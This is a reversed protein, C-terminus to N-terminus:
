YRKLGPTSSHHDRQHWIDKQDKIYPVPLSVVLRSKFADTYVPVELANLDNGLERDDDSWPDYDDRSEASENDKVAVFAISCNQVLLSSSASATVEELVGAEIRAGTLLLGDLQVARKWAGTTTDEEHSENDNDTWRARLRLNEPAVSLERATHQKLVSLFADPRSFCALEVRDPLRNGGGGGASGVLSVLSRYRSILQNVFALTDKPGAPWAVFWSKPTTTLDDRTARLTELDARVLQLLRRATDIEDSFFCSLPDNTETAGRKDHRSSQVRQQQQQLQQDVAAVLDKITKAVSSSSSSEGARNNSSRKTKTNHKMIDKLYALSIEAASKEWARHANAPLGFYAQISDAEDLRDVILIPNEQVARPVGIVSGLKRRGSYTDRCWLSRLLARLMRMDHQDQLQGGYVAVDLLGRDSEWDTYDADASGRMSEKRRTTSSSSATGSSRVVVLECAAELDAESWAYSKIWGQPVFKRREQLVAHLWAVLLSKCPDRLAPQRQQLQQLSRRVNRKVGEPPEYALKLCLGALGPYFGGVGCEETTLWIRTRPQKDLSRLLADLRPLWSKALQLNSLLIWSGNKCASELAAEAQGVHGQSLSVEAFGGGGAERTVSAVLARLEPEPDAGPSLLLLVPRCATNEEAIRKLTWAPPTLSKVGLQQAAWKALATHLHEPHLAQVILLKEFQTLDDDAYISVINNTWSPKLKNAMEPLVGILAKVATRQEPLVFNPVNRDTVPGGAANTSSKGSLLLARQEDPVSSLSVALHLALALRHKRYVASTCHHLVLTIMTKELSKEREDKALGRLGARAREAELFMEALQEDTFVYLSSLASFARVFKHLVAGYKALREHERSRKAIDELDRRSQELARHIERAKSQTLELTALLGPGGGSVNTSEQLLDQGRAAGLQLLLEQRAADIEGSLKEERQLAERRRQEIEPTEQLIAKDVLREVLSRSGAGLAVKTLLADAESPLEEALNERRTALFLRFGEQVPLQKDAIKLPGGRLLPLLVDPLRENMEEVLLPKGFRVALEVSTLFRPDGPRTTELGGSGGQNSKLWSVAVGSPDLFLPTLVGRLSRCAGVFSETDAPLGQARWQLKDRESILLEIARAREEEKPKSSSSGAPQEYVLLAAAQAAELGVRRRRETLRQLQTQWDAHEADLKALLARATALSSETAQSRLELEAAGRSHAALEEQLQAVKSEVSDLGSQLKGIEAEAANLRDALVRQEKELPAVQLVIKGYQLNALVWAALPAAAVSARRATKEEFSEPRERVLREVADLGQATSRRADWGRIEEKVGRKALFTKMSNWSTDKIGMLRLVGELVDRVAAPPARLSRVESLADSSIGAVAQSAQDVLPKVKGLELEIDAKRRALEVSERETEAKLSAMEGRQGTAGRMTATIQELAANARGRELELEHRHKSADEELKAVREGAEKLRDIGARLHRLKAATQRSWAERLERWKRLLACFRAPAQQRSAAGLQCEILEKSGSSGDDKQEDDIDDDAIDDDKNTTSQSRKQYLKVLERLYSETLWWDRGQSQGQTEACCRLLNSRQLLDGRLDNADVVIAVRLFKRLRHYLFQELNKSFEERAALDVLPVVLGDLEETSYLGPLEGHSVIAGILVAIDEERLHNEEILLITREGDIGASQVANKIAIKARGPGSSILKVNSIVSVVKVAWKRGAGPRGSLLIGRRECGWMWSIDAAIELLYSTVTASISDGERICRMVANDTESKWESESLGALGAAHNSKWVYLTAADNTTNTTRRHTAAGEGSGAQASVITELRKQEKAILKPRFIRRSADLLYGTLDGERDAPPYYKLSEIWTIVDRTTWKNNSKDSSMEFYAQVVATSVRSIWSKFQKENAKLHESLNLEVIVKLDKPQIKPLYHTALLSDLRPHFKAGTDSTCLLSLSVKAFELDDEYFGGEQILQRLLEQFDKSALHLDEVVLILSAGNKPKYSRGASSDLKVCARKLRSLLDRPGYLSSARVLALVRGDSEERCLAVIASVLATKGCGPEGRLVTARGSKLWPLTTNVGRQMPGSLYVPGDDTQQTKADFAFPDLTDKKENYLADYPNHSDPCWVDTQQYLWRVLEDRTTQDEIQGCLATVYAYTCRAQTTARRFHPLAASLLGAASKQGHTAKAVRDVVAPFYNQLAQSASSPLDQSASPPPLHQILSKASLGGLHVIGLRSVTAPSAGSLKHTEFIFRTENGLKIGVGNPLTLIRNDDLASNLSEAWDPEVDGDLVLWLPQDGFNTIVYSLIGEKYERTQSDVSGLLRTKPIAGPYVVFKKVSSGIKTLARALTDVILTKGSGAPGVVAVGSRSQLQDNLQICRNVITKSYGKADCIDALATQLEKNTRLSSELISSEVLFIDALLQLFKSADREVLKPMISIKIGHLLRSSEDRDDDEDDISFQIANLVSRLARLGWDYHPQQSLLKEAAYFTEILKNSLSAVNEFGYCELLSRVIYEKNPHAMGIPRFLRALSDPLKRRGGYDDGAPNMTVFLCCHPDVGIELGGLSARKEGDRIAEQLPRILMAVASMTGEELRNFEDFCGWAGAQALGSLIRRMSGADMGEDCNFVLVRRGLISGLAKVSETKGTGAPGTPSGGLGLRMAQTLALYCKETLPTRVLGVAAGQYEFRYAFEAKSCRILADGGSKYTRLQRQWTWGLKEKDGAVRLLSRVISLHHVTELLLNKAKLSGIPDESSELSRYRSRLNELHKLLNRLDAVGKDDDLAAECRETFRIRECLLLIQTPYLAIDPQQELLCTNLSQRLANRMGKELSVLWIPFEDTCDVKETLKLEEGEPSVISSIKNNEMKVSGLSQFLKSLHVDFGKGKGSILELLDEDSLFYLRPYASRKEELFDDLGRQCRDMLDKLSTLAHFPLKKLSPIRPDKYIEEMFYRFEKDVRSWRGQDSPAAGSSLVPELYVWKRQVVSLCKLRDELETLASECRAARSAFREYGAAGRAGEMILRLEGARTLLTSYDGVLHISNNRSDKTPQLPLVTYSEWAELEGLAQRIGSEAGARKTVEKIRDYNTRISQVNSLLHKLTIENTRRVDLGLIDKLENWHEEALEDSRLVQILDVDESLSEIKKEIFSHFQKTTGKENQGDSRRQQKENSKIQARWSDLWDYLKPIRKKVISWEEEEQKRLEDMFDSQLKCNIEESNLEQEMQEVIAEDSAFVEEIDINLKKCDNILTQRQEAIGTWKERMNELWDPTIAEPRELWKSVWREQEDRVALVQHNLNVKAEELQRVMVNQYTDLREKLSEWAIHANNLGDLKEKTWAALVRSLGTVDELERIIEDTQSQIQMYADFAEGIEEITRSRQQLKKSSTSLFDVISILRSSAEARLDLSLQEWYRRSLLELDNRITATDIVICSLKVENARLKGVEQAWQKAEKFAKEWDQAQKGKLTHGIDIKAPAVLPLWKLRFIELADLLIEAERYVAGFLHASRPVLRPFQAQDAQENGGGGVGRFNAPIVLFRRIGTYLKMRVDELHPRWQLSEDRYTLDLRLEPLKKVLTPLAARYAIALAKLLQRDWHLKWAATNGYRSEVSSVIERMHRLTEKWTNQNAVLNIADGKLLNCILNRLAAHRSALEANQLAFKKVLDRLRETFRDVSRPDSWAVGVQDRVAAALELASAQMLPRQSPIQRDGVTNYFNAIQQLARARGTLASARSVLERLERPLEVGQGALGRAERILGTLRPNYNVRMLNSSEGLEVVSTERGLTIENNLISDRMENIWSETLEQRQKEVEKSATALKQAVEDYGPLDALLQKGLKQLSELRLESVRATQVSRLIEPSDLLENTDPGGLCADILDSYTALLQQRESRLLQKITDRKVLDGYRRFETELALPTRAEVLLSKLKAAVREEIPALSGYVENRVRDWEANNEEGLLEEINDFKSFQADTGLSHRENSNLLRTLQRNQARIDAIEKLKAEFESCRQPKYPKGKWAHASNYPWFLGTLRASMATWKECTLAGRSIAEDKARADARVKCVLAKVVRAVESGIIELLSRMRQESYVPGKLKWLDDLHGSISDFTEEVMILGERSTSASELERRISKLCLAAHEYLKTEESSFSGGSNKLNELMAREEDLITATRTSDDNGHRLENALKKLSLSDYGADELAPCWVQRISEALAERTAAARGGISTIQVVDRFNDETVATESIKFFVLTNQGNPLRDSLEIKSKRPSSDALRVTAYLSRCKPRDFFNDLLALEPRGLSSEEGAVVLGFFRRATEIIYSKRNETAVM